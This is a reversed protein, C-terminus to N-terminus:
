NCRTASVRTIVPRPARIPWIRGCVHACAVTELQNMDQREKRHTSNKCARKDKGSMPHM